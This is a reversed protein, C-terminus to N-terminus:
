DEGVRSEDGRGECQKVGKGQAVPQDERRRKIGGERGGDACLREGCSTCM